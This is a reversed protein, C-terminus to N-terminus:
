KNKITLTIRKKVKGYAAFQKRTDLPLRQIGKKKVLSPNLVIYKTRLM